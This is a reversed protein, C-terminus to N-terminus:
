YVMSSVARCRTKAAPTELTYKRQQNQMAQKWPPAWSSCVFWSSRDFSSRDHDTKSRTM